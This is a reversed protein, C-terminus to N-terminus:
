TKLIKLTIISNLFDIEKVVAKVEKQEGFITSLLFKGDSARISAVSEAFIGSKNDKELYAKALCM